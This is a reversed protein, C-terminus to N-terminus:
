ARHRERSLAPDTAAAARADVLKARVDGSLYQDDTEWERTEPNRFVLGKLEPLFQEPSRGLLAEM